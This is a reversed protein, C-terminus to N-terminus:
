PALSALAAELGPDNGAAVDAGTLAAPVDPQLPLGVVSLDGVFVATNPVGLVWGNPLTRVLPARPSGATPEGVITVGPLSALITALLEAPGSTGPGVLVVVPGPYPGTPMPNVVSEGAPTTTGDRLRAETTAVVGGATVFRTAVLLADVESGANAPRLDIIVGTGDRLAQDLTAALARQSGESSSAFGGMRLFGLYRVGGGLDATIIGGAGAVSSGALLSGELLAAGLEVGAGPAPPSWVPGEGTHLAIAPDALPTLLDEIAQTLAADDGPPPAPLAAVRAEWGPDLAPYYHEEFSTVV